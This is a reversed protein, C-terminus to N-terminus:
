NTTSPGNAGGCDFVFIISDDIAFQNNENLKLGGNEAATYTTDVFNNDFYEKAYAKAGNITDKDSTDAATGILAEKLAADKEDAYKKAGYITNATSADEATGVIEGKLTTDAAIYADHDIAELEKVRTDMAANLGDAHDKAQKLIGTEANNIAEIAEKNTKVQGDALADVLGKAVGVEEWVKNLKTKVDSHLKEETVGGNVLTASIENTNSIAVQVETAADKATYIDVLDKAPVYIPTDQNAIVLEIYKEGVKAGAYPVDATEVEKVSGATVVLEKGLKISGIEEGCQTFVYTKAVTADDTNETITVTYDTQAPLGDVLGKAYDKAGQVASDTEDRTYADGIGYGALTTAREAYTDAIVKGNGDQTAKTAADANFAANVKVEAVKEAFDTIDAVEHTHDELTYVQLEVGNVKINGNTESAEVKTAGATIGELKELAEKLDNNTYDELAKAISNAVSGETNEDGELTDLRAKLESVDESGLGATELVGTIFETLGAETKCASLVDAAKASIFPLDNYNSKGAEGTGVKIVVAPVQIIEGTGKDVQTEVVSAIAMEGKKLFPNLSHWADYSDYRLQVHTHIIKETAM